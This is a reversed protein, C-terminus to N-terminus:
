GNKRIFLRKLFIKIVSLCQERFEKEFILVILSVIISFAISISGNILLQIWINDTTIMFQSLIFLSLIFIAIFIYNKVYYKKVSDKFGFKFLVYPEVIHCILLNTLITAIIVGIVNFEDPLVLVLIISLIVNSAGEILPKFRDQYFTGTADRFLIVDKRMYQVFYNITIVFSVAKSLELNNGFCICILEDIISYYGLFFITGLIFSLVYIFNFNKKILNYTNEKCMHGIVSTLPTFFMGLLNFLATMVTIYNSYKGLIVVGIFASIVINDVTNVLVGGIRHMFRAKINKSVEKKTDYDIKSNLSIVDNRTKRCLFEIFIWEIIGGISRCILYVEFSKFIILSIIQLLQCIIKSGSNIATTIYNDKFANMLSIKASYIYTIVTSLLMLLFTININTDLSTYDKALISLFPITCLGAITIIAGIIFYLKKFLNYLGAVKTFDREVIPKYMSYSIATGVGLEAVSLFGILSLYLSNLGSIGIGLNQILFRRTIFNLVLLILYFFISVLVNLLGRKKDM